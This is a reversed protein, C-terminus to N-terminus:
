KNFKRGSWPLGFVCDHAGDIRNSRYRKGTENVYRRIATLTRINEDCLRNFENLDLPAADPHWPHATEGDANRFYELMADIAQVQIKSVGLDRHKRWYDLLEPPQEAKGFPDASPFVGFQSRSVVHLENEFGILMAAAINKCAGGVSVNYDAYSNVSYSYRADNEHELLMDMATDDEALLAQYACYVPIQLNKDYKEPFRIVQDEGRRASGNVTPAPNQSALQEILFEVRKRNPDPKKGRPEQAKTPQMFLLMLCIQSLLFARM